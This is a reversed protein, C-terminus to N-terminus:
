LFISPLTHRNLHHLILILIFVSISAAVITPLSSISSSKGYSINSLITKHRKLSKNKVMFRAYGPHTWIVRLKTYRFLSGNCSINEYPASIDAQACLSYALHNGKSFRVMCCHQSHIAVFVLKKNSILLVLISRASCANDYSHEAISSM